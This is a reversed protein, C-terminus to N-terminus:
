IGVMDEGLKEGLNEFEKYIDDLVKNSKAANRSNEEQVLFSFMDDLNLNTPSVHPQHQTWM